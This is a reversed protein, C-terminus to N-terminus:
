VNEDGTMGYVEGLFLAAFGHSYMAGHAADACLLGSEQASKCVYEVARKVNEGYKGRGPLNGASMFALGSLATIASTAGYGGGGRGFSGDSGQQSALWALGKEVGAQQAPTIEDGRVQNPNVAIGIEAARKAAGANEVPQTAQGFASSASLLAVLLSIGRRVESKDTRVDRM